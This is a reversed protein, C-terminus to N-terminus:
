PDLLHIWPRAIDTAMTDTSMIHGYIFGDDAFALFVFFLCFFCNSQEDNFVDTSLIIKGRQTHYLVCMNIENCFITLATVLKGLGATVFHWLM